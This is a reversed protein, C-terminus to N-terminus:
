INYASCEIQLGCILCEEWEAYSPIRKGDCDNDDIYKKFASEGNDYEHKCNNKFEKIESEHRKYIDYITIM